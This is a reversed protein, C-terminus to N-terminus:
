IPIRSEVFRLIPQQTRSSLFTGLYNWEPSDQYMLYSKSGEWVGVVVVLGLERATTMRITRMQNAIGLRQYKPHVATSGSEALIGQNLYLSVQPINGWSPEQAPVLLSHAIVEMNPDSLSGDSVVITQYARKQRDRTHNYLSNKSWVQTNPFNTKESVECVLRAGQTLLKQSPETHYTFRTSTQLPSEPNKM